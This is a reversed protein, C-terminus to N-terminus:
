ETSTDKKSCSKTKYGRRKSSSAGPASPINKKSNQYFWVHRLHFGRSKIEIKRWGTSYIEKTLFWSVRIGLTCYLKLLVASYRSEAKYYLCVSPHWCNCSPNQSEQRSIVSGKKVVDNRSTNGSMRLAYKAFLRINTRNRRRSIKITSTLFQSKYLQEAMNKTMECYREVCSKVHREMEYSWAVIRVQSRMGILKQIERFFRSEFMLTYQDITIENSKCERQTYRLYVHDLFSTM